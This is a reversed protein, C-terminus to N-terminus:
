KEASSRQAMEARPAGMAAKAMPYVMCPDPDFYEVLRPASYADLHELLRRNASTSKSASSCPRCRCWWPSTPSRAM